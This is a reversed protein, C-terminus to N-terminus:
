ELIKYLIGIYECVYYMVFSGVATYSLKILRIYIQKLIFHLRLKKMGSQVMSLQITSQLFSLDTVILVYHTVGTHQFDSSSVLQGFLVHSYYETLM